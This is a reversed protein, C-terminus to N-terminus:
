VYEAPTKLIELHFQPRDSQKMRTPQREYGVGLRPVGGGRTPKSRNRSKLHFCKKNGSNRVGLSPIPGKAEARVWWGLDGSNEARSHTKRTSRWLGQLIKSLQAPASIPSRADDGGRPRAARPAGGRSGKPPAAAAEWAPARPPGRLGRPSGPGGGARRECGREALLLAATKGCSRSSAPAQLAGAGESKREKRAKPDQQRLRALNQSSFLSPGSGLSRSRRPFLAALPVCCGGHVGPGRWGPLLTLFALRGQFLDWPAFRLDAADRSPLPSSGLSGTKPLLM